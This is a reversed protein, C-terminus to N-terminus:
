GVPPSGFYKESWEAIAERLGDSPTTKWTLKGSAERIVEFTPASKNGAETVRIVNREGDARVDLDYTRGGIDLTQITM